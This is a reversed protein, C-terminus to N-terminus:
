EGGQLITEIMEFMALALMEQEQKVDELTLTQENVGNELEQIEEETLGEEWKETDFNWRPEFLRTEQWDQTILVKDSQEIEEDSMLYIEIIKGNEDVEFVQKSEM